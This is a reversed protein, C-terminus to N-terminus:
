KEVFKMPILFESARALHVQSVRVSKSDVVVQGPKARPRSFFKEFFNRGLGM